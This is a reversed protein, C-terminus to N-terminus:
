TTSRGSPESTLAQTTAEITAPLRIKSWLARLGNLRLGSVAGDLGLRDVLDAPAQRVQTLPMTDLTPVVLGAFGRVVLASPPATVAVLFRDGDARSAYSVPSQCEPLRRLEGAQPNPAPLEDGFEVLWELRHAPSLTAAEELLEDLMERVSQMSGDDGTRTRGAVEGTDAPRHAGNSSPDAAM